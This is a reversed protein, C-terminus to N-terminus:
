TCCFYMDICYSRLSLSKVVQVADNIFVKQLIGFFFPQTSQEVWGDGDKAQHFDKCDKLIFIGLSFGYVCPVFDKLFLFVISLFLQFMDQVM